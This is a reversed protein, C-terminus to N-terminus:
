LTSGRNAFFVKLYWSVELEKIYAYEGSGYARLYCSHPTWLYRYPRHDCPNGNQTHIKAPTIM